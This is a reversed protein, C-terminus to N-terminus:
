DHSINTPKLVALSCIPRSKVAAPNRKVYILRRRPQVAHLSHPRQEPHCLNLSVCQYTSKWKGHHGVGGDNGHSQLHETRMGLPSLPDASRLIQSHGADLSLLRAGPHSFPAGLQLVKDVCVLHYLIYSM